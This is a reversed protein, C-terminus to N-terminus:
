QRHISHYINRNASLILLNGPFIPQIYTGIVLWLCFIRPVQFVIYPRYNQVSPLSWRTVWAFRNAGRYTNEPRRVVECFHDVGCFFSIFSSERLTNRSWVFTATSSYLYLNYKYIDVLEENNTWCNLIHYLSIFFIHFMFTVIVGITIPAKPVTVLHNNFLSSSKSTFPRTSVIWVVINNLVARISLLTRPVQPSKSDSLSWHIVM